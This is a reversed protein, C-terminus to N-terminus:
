SLDKFYRFYKESVKTWTKLKTMDTSQHLQYNGIAMKMAMISVETSFNNM